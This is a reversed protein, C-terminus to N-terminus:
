EIINGDADVLCGALFLDALCDLFRFTFCLLFASSAVSLCLSIDSANEKNRFAIVQGNLYPIPIGQGKLKQVFVKFNDKTTQNYKYESFEAYLTEEENVANQFDALSDFDFPYGLPSSPNNESADPPNDANCACLCLCLIVSIVALFKKM